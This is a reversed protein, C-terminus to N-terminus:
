HVSLQFNADYNRWDKRLRLIGFEQWVKKLNKYTNRYGSYYLTEKVVTKIEKEKTGDEKTIEKGTFYRKLVKKFLTQDNLQSRRALESAKHRIEKAVRGNM